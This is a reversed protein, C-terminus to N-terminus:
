NFLQNLVCFEILEQNNKVDLKRMASNKQLSITKDSRNLIKSIENVTKGQTFLRLVENERPSLAQVKEPLSMTNKFDNSLMSYNSKGRSALLITQILEEPSSDKNSVCLVGSDYLSQIMMSNSMITLVVININPYNRRLFQIYKIGDGAQQNKPMMFDTIIIDVPNQKLYNILGVDDLFVGVIDINLISREITDKLGSLVVPHDDVLVVKIKEM